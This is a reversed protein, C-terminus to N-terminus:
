AEMLMDSAIKVWQAETIDSSNGYIKGYGNHHPMLSPIAVALMVATVTVLGTRRRQRACWAPYEQSLKAGYREAEARQWLQDFEEDTLKSKM